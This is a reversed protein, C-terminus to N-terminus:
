ENIQINRIIENEYKKLVKVILVGIFPIHEEIYAYVTNIIRPANENVLKKVRKKVEKEAEVQLDAFVKKQLIYIDDAKSRLVRKGGDIIEKFLKKQAEYVDAPLLDKLAM